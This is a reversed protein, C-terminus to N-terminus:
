SCAEDKWRSFPERILRSNYYRLDGTIERGLWSPQEFVDDESQLELEAVILGTNDGLFEDIEWCRGAFPVYHRIKELRSGCFERILAAADAPPIAYEYEQRSFGTVPSKLTLFARDGAIRVRFSHAPKEEFRAYAQCIRCSNQVSQRWSDNKLLFKREIETNM